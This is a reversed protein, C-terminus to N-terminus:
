QGYKYVGLLRKKWISLREIVVGGSGEWAHIFKDNGLYYGVHLNGPVRFVLVAGVQLDCSTWLPMQQHFKLAIGAADNPSLFDPINVGDKSLLYAVLGYCDFASKDRGGYKFPVGILDEYMDFDM